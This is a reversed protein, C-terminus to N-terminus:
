NWSPWRSDREVYTLKMPTPESVLAVVSVPQYDIPPIVWNDFSFEFDMKFGSGEPLVNFIYPTDKTNSVEPIDYGSGWSEGPASEPADALYEDIGKGIAAGGKALRQTNKYNAGMWALDMIPLPGDTMGVPIAGAAWITMGLWTGTITGVGEWIGMAM